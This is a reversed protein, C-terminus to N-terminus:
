GEQRTHLSNLLEDRQRLLHKPMVSYVHSFLDEPQPPPSSEMAAIAQSLTDEISLRLAAEREEDWFGWDLLQRKLRTIPDRKRWEEAETEDRYKGPDDATTHPGFRYTLAEVLTPGAGTRAKNVARSVAAYVAIADSGDVRVGEIGYAAAKEAVGQVATQKRFPVSIAYQNNECFFVVPLQFVGAFNMAEHFDGESSAGDGFFGLVVQDSHRLKAAWAAGAAHPLQTAIPVAMPFVNVGPPIVGGEARGNWYLLINAMPVGHLMMAGYDRYTPFVFDRSELALVSAVQCAEQGALPPYTGIRGSRQLRIAREDFERLLRMERYMRQLLVEPVGSPPQGLVFGERSPNETREGQTDQQTDEMAPIQKAM